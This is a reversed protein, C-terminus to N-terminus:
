SAAEVGEMVDADLCPGFRDLFDQESMQGAEAMRRLLDPDQLDRRRLRIMYERAVRYYESRVDVPRTRIRGTSPDQLEEFPFVRLQGADLCVLGGSQALDKPDESLLFDVAGFGLTRTYDIDFPIPPACRLEYGLMVPVVSITEGRDAFRKVIEREIIQELPIKELRINNHADYRVEVGPLSALRDPNMRAAVGEAIVAMGDRRGLARRKLMAAEIVLLVDDLDIESKAFEEPTITITAGAAKGIGLALHGTKRGMVVVVCWRNTTKSEEMLNLALETGLQRATEFGFTPAGGPLPLDNDITKPIHAFRIKGRSKESVAAAASATDDGGITVLYTLGLEELTNVTRELDEESRMPNARSTRIISGGQSHIRTVDALALPRIMDTRGEILHSFGDVIGVVELGGQIADIAAASLASNIGPAPGGGVLIGLRHDSM